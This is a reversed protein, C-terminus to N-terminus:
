APSRLDATPRIRHVDAEAGHKPSRMLRVLIDGMRYCSIFVRVAVDLVAIYDDRGAHRFKCCITANSSSEDNQLTHSGFGDDTACYYNLAHTRVTRRPCAPM